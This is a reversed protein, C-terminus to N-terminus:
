ASTEAKMWERALHAFYRHVRDDDTLEPHFACALLNGQKLLVIKDECRALVEVNEGVSVAYPARIFVARVTPPGIVEVELDAEFSDVQRGFANRLVSFDMVGLRDQDSEIIEKAMLIMGTCTGFIPMGQRAREAIKKDLGYRNMLKGVTTSEGGPIILGHIRDLEDVFRVRVAKVGCKEVMRAHMDVDGQVALVGIVPEEKKRAETNM